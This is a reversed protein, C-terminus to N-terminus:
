GTCQLRAFTGPQSEDGGEGIVYVANDGGFAVGEGQAEGVDALDSTQAVTWNGALLQQTQFFLLTDHTRLVVRRGDSSVAGDTIQEDKDVKGTTMPQGVRELRAVAGGVPLPRPFRYLAIPGTSGKTVIYVGAEPTVLLTEADHTGDPYTAHFAEATITAPLAAEPETLRYLTIHDRTGENDGIDAVYICSGAACRGTAVAEWDTVTAGGIGVRGTVAGREDISFLVSEGSDNHTWFRHPVRASATM